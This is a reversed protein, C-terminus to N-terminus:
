LRGADNVYYEAEVEYGNAKLLRVLADGYAAGRGHGVHLPGTPNASVFEVLVKQGAGIQSLGYNQGETKITDIVQSHANKVLSFNIFGPGAIELKEVEPINPFHEVILQAVERPNRQAQKAVVLAINSAFDGHARDRTREISIRELADPMLVNENILVTVALNLGREIAQKM